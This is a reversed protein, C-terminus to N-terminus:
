LRRRGVYDTGGHGLRGSMLRHASYETAVGIRPGCPEDAVPGTGAGTSPTGGGVQRCRGRVAYVDIDLDLFHGVM